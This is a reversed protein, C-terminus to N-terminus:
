SMVPFVATVGFDDEIWGVLLIFSLPLVIHLSLPVLLTGERGLTMSAPEGGWSYMCTSLCEQTSAHPWLQMLGVTGAIRWHATLVVSALHLHGGCEQAEQQPLGVKVKSQYVQDSQQYELSLVSVDALEGVLASAEAVQPVANLYELPDIPVACLFLYVSSCPMVTPPATGEPCGVM